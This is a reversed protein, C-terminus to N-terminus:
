KGGTLIKEIRYLVCDEELCRNLFNCHECAETIENMIQTEKDIIKPQMFVDKLNGDCVFEFNNENNICNELTIEKYNFIEKM